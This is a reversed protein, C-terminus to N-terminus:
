KATMNRAIVFSGGSMFGRSGFKVVRCLRLLDEMETTSEIALTPRSACRDAGSMSGGLLTGNMCM